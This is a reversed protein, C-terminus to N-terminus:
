ELNGFLVVLLYPHSPTRQDYKQSKTRGDCLRGYILGRGNKPPESSSVTAKVRRGAIGQKTSLWEAM